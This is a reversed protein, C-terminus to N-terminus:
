PHRGYEIKVFTENGVDDQSAHPKMRIENLDYGYLNDHYEKHIKTWCGACTKNCLGTHCRDHRKDNGVMEYRNKRYEPSHKSGIKGHYESADDHHPGNPARFPFFGCLKIDKM